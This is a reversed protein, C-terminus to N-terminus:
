LSKYKNQAKTFIAKAEKMYKSSPYENVFGYYEDITNELREKMKSLISQQALHFKSRLILISFEEKKSTYPFDKIANECTIICAEYNNGGMTCNGIYGGLTYYLKAAQYQKEVLKDQMEFVLDKAQPAYKSDPSIELFSQMESIATVTGTQDLETQPMSMYLSYAAYFRADDVHIGTPYTAFYRKFYSNATAYDKSHVINMAQFFAAEDGKETGKLAPMTEELLMAANTHKGEFFYQKMTEYKFDSDPSKIVKNFSNCSMCLICAWVLLFYSSKLKM